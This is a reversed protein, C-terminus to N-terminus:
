GLSVKGAVWLAALAIVALHAVQDAWIAVHLAAPGDTAQLYTRTWWAVPKRTDILLHSLALLGAIAPPFVFALALGHIGSHVWAAPHRLTTKHEAMWRNQLLWDAILHALMGWVLLNTALM